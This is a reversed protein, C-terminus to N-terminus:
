IASKVDLEPMHKMYAVKMEDPSIQDYTDM